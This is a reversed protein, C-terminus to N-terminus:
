APPRWRALSPTSACGRHPACAFGVRAPQARRDGTPNRALGREGLGELLGEVSDIWTGGEELQVEFRGWGGGGEGRALEEAAPLGELANATLRNLVASMLRCRAAGAVTHTLTLGGNGIHLDPLLLPSLQRAPPAPALSGAGGKGEAEGGGAEDGAGLGPGLGLSAVAAADHLALRDPLRVEGTPSGRSLADLPGTPRAKLSGQGEDNAAGDGSGSGAGGLLARLQQALSRGAGSGQQAQRYPLPLRLLPSAPAGAV